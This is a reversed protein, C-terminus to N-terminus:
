YEVFAAAAPKGIHRVVFRHLTRDLRMGEILRMWNDTQAATFRAKALALGSATPPAASANVLTFKESREAESLYFYYHVSPALIGDVTGAKLADFLIAQTPFEVVRNEGLLSKLHYDYDNGYRFGKVLGIRWHPQQIFADLSYTHASGIIPLVLMNKIGFYTVFRAFKERGRTAISSTAMDIRGAEIAPWLDVRMLRQIEFTCGSRRTLEAILDADIGVGNHYLAGFEVIGVRIPRDCGFDQLTWPRPPENYAAALPAVTLSGAMLFLCTLIWQCIQIASRFQARM